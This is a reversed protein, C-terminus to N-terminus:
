YFINFKIGKSNLFDLCSDKILSKPVTVMYMLKQKDVSPMMGFMHLISLVDLESTIVTLTFDDVLSMKSNGYVNCEENYYKVTPEFLKVSCMKIAELFEGLDTSKPECYCFCSLAVKKTNLPGVIKTIENTNTISFRQRYGIMIGLGEFGDYGSSNTPNYTIERFNTMLPFMKEIEFVTAMKSRKDNPNDKKILGARWSQPKILDFKKYDFEGSTFLDNLDKKLTVLVHNQNGSIYPLPEEMVLYRLKCCSLFHKFFNKLAQTYYSVDLGENSVECCFIMKNDIDIAGLGTCSTSQDIGVDWIFGKPLKYNLSFDKVSKIGTTCEQTELNILIFRVKIM